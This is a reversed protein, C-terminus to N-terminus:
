KDGEAQKISETKSNIRDMLMYLDAFEKYSFDFHKDTPNSEGEMDKVWIRFSIVRKGKYTDISIVISETESRKIEGVISCHIEKPNYKKEQM